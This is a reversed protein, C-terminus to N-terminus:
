PRKLNKPKRGPKRDKEIYSLIAQKSTVWNRGIKKAWIVGSEALRRLYDSSLGCIHAAEQLPILDDLTPEVSNQPEEFVM